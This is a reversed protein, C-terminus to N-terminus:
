DEDKLWYIKICHSGNNDNLASAKDRWVLIAPVFAVPITEYDPYTEDIKIYKLDIYCDAHKIKAQEYTLLERKM